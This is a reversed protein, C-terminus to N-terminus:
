MKESLEQILLDLAEFYQKRYYASPNGFEHQNSGGFTSPPRRLRPLIPEGIGLGQLDNVVGEFFKHFADNQRQLLSTYYICSYFLKKFLSTKQRLFRM